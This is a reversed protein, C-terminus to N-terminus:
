DTKVPERGVARAQARPALFKILKLQGKRSIKSQDADVLWLHELQKLHEIAADSIETNAIRLEELGAARQLHKVGADTIATSSLDISTVADPFNMKALMEDTVDAGNFDLHVKMKGGANQVSLRYGDVSESVPASRSEAENCGCLLPCSALTLCSLVLHSLLRNM